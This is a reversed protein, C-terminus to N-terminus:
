EFLAGAFEKASFDRLDDIKEGVGILKVPVNLEEKIAVIIGGKATGDLKTVVLGTIDLHQKFIRAQQLANQGTTADLSLLTEHPADPMIKKLVKRIKKLEQMLNINTHLRGATDIIVVDTGRSKAAKLSDFAVSAPDSGSAHRVVDVKARDAWVELQEIAAARFTDSAGLLVKKGEKRFRLAMKGITTTKGTGNVGIMMIVHPKADSLGFRAEESMLIKTVESKLLSPVQNSEKIKEEKIRKKINEIIKLSTGVGFDAQILIEELEDIMDDDIKVHRRILDSVPTNLVKRTKELKKKLGTKVKSFFSKM